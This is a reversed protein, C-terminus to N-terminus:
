SEGPNNPGGADRIANRKLTDLYQTITALRQRSKRVLEANNLQQFHNAAEQFCICAERLDVESGASGLAVSVLAEGRNFLVMAYEGSQDEKGRLALVQDYHRLARLGHRVAKSKEVEALSMFSNGLNIQLAAYGRPHSGRRRVQLARRYCLISRKINGVRNGTRLERCAIGLNQLTGAYADPNKERTRVQLANEYNGIANQWKNPVTEEPLESFANGLNFEERAFDDPRAESQFIRAAQRHCEIAALLRAKLPMHPSAAYTNGLAALIRARELPDAAAGLLSLAKGLHVHAVQLDVLSHQRCGGSYCIGLYYHIASNTPDLQAAAESFEIADECQRSQCREAASALLSSSNNQPIHM